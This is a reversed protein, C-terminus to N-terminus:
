TTRVSLSPAGNRRVVGPVDRGAELAAKIATKDPARSIRVFEDPLAAEDTVVVGPTGARATAVFECDDLRKMGLADLMDLTARRAGAARIAFRAARGSLKDARERAAREMAEMALAYRVLRRAVDLADTEGDLMGSLLAEDGDPDAGEALLLARVDAAIALAREIAAPSPPKLTCDPADRGGGQRRM